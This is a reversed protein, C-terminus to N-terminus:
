FMEWGAFRIQDYKSLFDKISFRMKQVTHTAFGQRMLGVEVAIKM